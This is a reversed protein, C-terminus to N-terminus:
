LGYGNTRFAGTGRYTHAFFIQAQSAYANAFNMREFARISFRMHEFISQMSAGTRRNHM